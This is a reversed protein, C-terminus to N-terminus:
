DLIWRCADIKRWLKQNDSGRFPKQTPLDKDYKGDILVDIYDLIDDGRLDDITYGTYAWIDKEPYAAKVAKVIRLITERNAPYFPDGGSLTLGAIYAPKLSLIVKDLTAQTFEEGARPNCIALNHCGKCLHECGSVFLTHRVGEGDVMSNLNYASFNM